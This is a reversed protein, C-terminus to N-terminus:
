ARVVSRARKRRRLWIAFALVGLSMPLGASGGSGDSVVRCGCGSADTKGRRGPPGGAVGSGGDPAAADGAAGSPASRDPRLGPAGGDDDTGLLDGAVCGGSSCAEGRPCVADQCADVCAGARCAEGAGCTQTECGPEVCRGDAACALPATCGACACDLVCAGRDCVHGADCSVAACPDVCRGSRCVLMGPCQVGDCPARCAGEICAQGSDCTKGACQPDVCLGNECVDGDFCPFEDGCPPVCSGRVCQEGPPCLDDADDPAGNCDNDVGDCTEAEPQVLQKCVLTGSADCETLGDLCAGQKGSVQCGEGAGTCALGTFRFVYDNYDGDNDWGVATTDGDEFALYYTNPTKTSKYTVSLIWPMGNAAFLVNWGAQSFNPPSPTRILAFGISGGLYNAHTRISQGTIVTGVPSGAPVVEYIETLMPPATAGPVVNYWGVALTSGSQKLMLTATFDCLPSFTDPTAHADKIWDIAEGEQTFLEYVQVESGSDVPVVKGNPLTVDARASSVVCWCASLLVVLRLLRVRDSLVIL